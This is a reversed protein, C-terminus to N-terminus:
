DGLGLFSKAALVVKSYEKCPLELVVEYPVGAAKAAVRTQFEMSLQPVLGDLYSSNGQSTMENRAELIHKGKIGEFDFELETYEHEQYIIPAALEIKM